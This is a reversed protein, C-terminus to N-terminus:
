HPSNESGNLSNVSITRTAELANATPDEFFFAPRLWVRSM